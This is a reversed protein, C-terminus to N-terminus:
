TFLIDVQRALGASSLLSLTGIKSCCFLGYTVSLGPVGQEARGYTM